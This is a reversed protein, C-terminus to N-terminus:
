WSIREALGGNLLSKQATELTRVVKSGVYGDSKPRRGARICDLFHACEIKLPETLPVYPVKIDGYRYSLQFDGFTDTHPLVTVGKDYIRIKELSEVDDYVVMKKSGVVTIKRMKCPDLWSVHVHALIGKPFSLTLYAVDHIGPQVFSSGRASVTEPETGLVYMLISIDHPALDWLVNIDKQFLGLNLRSTNVYYVDGIEAAQIINKLTEVAPNYEFTHGVMLLRDHRRAINVLDEADRSSTALPKEVLVHKGHILALKAMQYHTSAGTAVVVADLSSELIASYDRTVEVAPYLKKIHVLRDEQLDAVMQVLAGPIELFNRILNPGWYGCGVVGIRVFSKDRSLAQSVPLLDIDPVVTKMYTKEGAPSTIQSGM